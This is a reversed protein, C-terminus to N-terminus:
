PRRNALEALHAIEQEVALKLAPLSPRFYYHHTRSRVPGSGVTVTLAMAPGRRAGIRAEVVAVIASVGLSAAVREAHAELEALEASDV